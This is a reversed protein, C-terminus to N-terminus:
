FNDKFYLSIKSQREIHKGTISDPNYHDAGPKSLPAAPLVLHDASVGIDGGELGYKDTINYKYDHKEIKTSGALAGGSEADETGGTAGPGSLPPLTGSFLSESSSKLSPKKIDHDSSSMALDSTGNTHSHRSRLSGDKNRSKHGGEGREQKPIKFRKQRRLYCGNEFM